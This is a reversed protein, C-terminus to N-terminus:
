HRTETKAIAAEIAQEIQGGVNGRCMELVGRLENIILDGEEAYRKWRMVMEFMEEKTIDTM